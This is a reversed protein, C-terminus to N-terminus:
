RTSEGARQSHLPNPQRFNATTGRPVIGLVFGGFLFTGRPVFSLGERILCLGMGSNVGMSLCFVEGLGMLKGGTVRKQERRRVFKLTGDLGKERLHKGPICGGRELVSEVARAREGCRM